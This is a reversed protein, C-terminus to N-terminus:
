QFNNLLKQVKHSSKLRNRVKILNLLM